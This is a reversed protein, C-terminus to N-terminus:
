SNRMDLPKSSDTLYKVPIVKERANKAEIKLIYLKTRVRLVSVEVFDVRYKRPIM